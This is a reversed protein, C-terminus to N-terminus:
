RNVYSTFQGLYGQRVLQQPVFAPLRRVRSQEDHRDVKNYCPLYITSEKLAALALQADSDEELYLYQGRPSMYSYASVKDLIDLKIADKRSIRLWAHGPDSYWQLYIIRDSKM